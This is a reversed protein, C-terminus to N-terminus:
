IKNACRLMASRARYNKEIEEKEPVVPKETLIRILNEKAKERFFNKVIKDELSHFSIVVLAGQEGLIELALPLATRLNNLEDNVAIRLAQFTKTAFHIKRRQYWFPVADKIIEKLQFTNRIFKIKRQGIIARAIKKSFKEEGYERLIKEIEEKSWHNVIDEAKVQYDERFSQQINIKYRMDLPENRQFSFGRGSEELDWSSMGIDFLIGNVKKFNYKEVINKLNIYSDNVLIIRDQIKSNPIKAIRQKLKQYLEIDTEIGLIKGEPGTKELIAFAHGMEGLTADIFNENAKPNLYKIVEKKLVPIHM